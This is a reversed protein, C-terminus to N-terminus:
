GDHAVYLLRPLGSNCERHVASQTFLPNLSSAKGRLVRLYLRRLSCILAGLSSESSLSHLSLLWSLWSMGMGRPRLVVGTRAVEESSLSLCRCLCLHRPVERLLDDEGRHEWRASLAPASFSYYLDSILSCRAQYPMLVAKRVEDKHYIKLGIVTSSVSFHKM